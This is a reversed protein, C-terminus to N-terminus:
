PRLRMKGGSLNESCISDCESISCGTPLDDLFTSVPVQQGNQLTSLQTERYNVAQIQHSSPWLGEESPVLSLDLESIEHGGPGHSILLTVHGGKQFLHRKSVGSFM